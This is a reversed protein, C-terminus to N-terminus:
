LVYVCMGHVVGVIYYVGADGDIYVYVCLVGFTISVSLGFRYLM